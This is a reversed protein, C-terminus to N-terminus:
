IYFRDLRHIDISRDHGDDIWRISKVEDCTFAFNGRVTSLLFHGDRLQVIFGAYREHPSFSVSWLSGRPMGAERAASLSSFDITDM